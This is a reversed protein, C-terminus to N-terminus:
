PKCINRWTNHATIKMKREYIQVEVKKFSFLEYYEIARERMRELITEENIGNLKM